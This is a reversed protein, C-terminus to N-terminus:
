LLFLFIFHGKVLGGKGDGFCSHAVLQEMIATKGTGTDGVLIVGSPHDAVSDSNLLQFYLM